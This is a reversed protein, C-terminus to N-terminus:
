PKIFKLTFRDSEGIESYKDQDFSEETEEGRAASKLTPPLTWVGFPHDATDKPNNNVPSSEVLVFGAQEIIQIAYAENVYGSKAQPDVTAGTPARHDIVGFVGGPKLAKYVQALIAEQTGRALWNHLNRFTVILDASNDPAMSPTNPGLATITIDGYIDSDSIKERYRKLGAAIYSVDTNPDWNAAIFKGGGRNLYPAIVETYWGGGPWIEVATM